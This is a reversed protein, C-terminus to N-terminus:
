ICPQLFDKSNEWMSKLIQELVVLEYDNLTKLNMLSDVFSSEHMTDSFFGLELPSIIQTPDGEMIHALPKFAKRLHFSSNHFNVLESTQYEKILKQVDLAAM